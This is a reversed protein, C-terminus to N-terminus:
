LVKLAIKGRARGTQSYALADKIQDLPFVRDIVVKIRRTMLQKCLWAIDDARQAVMMTAAKKGPQLITVFINWFISPTPLTNIYVGRETL